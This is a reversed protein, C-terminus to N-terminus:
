QLEFAPRASIKHPYRFGSVMAAAAAIRASLRDLRPISKQLRDLHVSSNKSMSVNM